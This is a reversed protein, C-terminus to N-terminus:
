WQGGTLLLGIIVVGQIALLGSLKLCARSYSDAWAVRFLDLM